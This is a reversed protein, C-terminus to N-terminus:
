PASRLAPWGGACYEEWRGLADVWTAHRPIAYPEMHEAHLTYRGGILGQPTWPLFFDRPGIRTLQRLYVACLGGMAAEQTLKRGQHGQPHTPRLKADAKYVEASTTKAEFSGGRGGEVLFSFDTHGKGARRYLHRVHDVMVMAPMHRRLSVGPWQRGELWEELEQGQDHSAAGQLVKRPDPAPTVERAKQLVQDLKAPPKHTPYIAMITMTPTKRTM